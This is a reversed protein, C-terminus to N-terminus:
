IKFNQASGLEQKRELTKGRWLSVKQHLKKTSHTKVNILVKPYICSTERVM